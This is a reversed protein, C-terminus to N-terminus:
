FIQFVPVGGLGTEADPERRFRYRWSLPKAKFYDTATSPVRGSSVQLSRIAMLNLAERVSINHYIPERRHTSPLCDGLFDGLVGPVEKGHADYWAKRQMELYRSLDPTYSFYPLRSEM